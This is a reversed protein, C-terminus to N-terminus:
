GSRKWVREVLALRDVLRKLAGTGGVVDTLEFLRDILELPGPQAAKAPWPTAAPAASPKRGPKRGPRKKAPKAPTAEAASTSDEAKVAGLKKM